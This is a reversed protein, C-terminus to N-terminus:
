KLIGGLIRRAQLIRRKVSALSLGEMQAIERLGFGYMRLILVRRLDPELRTKLWDRLEHSCTEDNTRSSSEVTDFMAPIWNDCRGRKDLFDLMANRVVVFLRPRVGPATIWVARARFLKLFVEHFIDQADHENVFRRLYIELAKRHALYLETLIVDYDGDYNDAASGRGHGQRSQDSAGKADAKM